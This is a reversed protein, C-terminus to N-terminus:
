SGVGESRIADTCMAITNECSRISAEVLDPLSLTAYASLVEEAERSGPLASGFNISVSVAADQGRGTLVSGNQKLWHLARQSREIDQAAKIIRATDM